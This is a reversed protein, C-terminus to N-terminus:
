NVDSDINDDFKEKYHLCIKDYERKYYDSFEEPTPARKLKQEQLRWLIDRFRKSPSKYEVADNEPLNKLIDDVDIDPTENGIPSDTLVIVAIDGRHSDIVAIDSSPIELLSDLRISVTDDVRRNYGKLEAQIVKM